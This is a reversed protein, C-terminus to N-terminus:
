GDQQARRIKLTAAVIDPMSLWADSAETKTERHFLSRRVRQLLHDPV